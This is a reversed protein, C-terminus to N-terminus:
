CPPEENPLPPYIYSYKHDWYKQLEQIKIKAEEYSYDVFPRYIDQYVNNIHDSWGFINKSQIIYRGNHEKRLRFRM